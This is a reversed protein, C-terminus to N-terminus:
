IVVDDDLHVVVIWCFSAWSDVVFRALTTCDKYCLVSCRTILLSTLVRWLRYALQM